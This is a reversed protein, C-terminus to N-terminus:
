IVYVNNHTNMVFKKFFQLFATLDPLTTKPDTVLSKRSDIQDNTHNTESLYVLIQILSFTASRFILSMLLHGIPYM